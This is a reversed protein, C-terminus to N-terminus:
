VIKKRKLSTYSIIPIIIIFAIFSFISTENTQTTSFEQIIIEYYQGNNDEVVVNHNPSDDVAILYYEIVDDLQLTLDLIALYTSPVNEMMAISQWLGDNVRYYLTVNHIGSRDTVTCNILITENIAPYEPISYVNTILPETFDEIFMRIFADYTGGNFTDDYGNLEPFDTSRTNGTIYYCGDPSIAIGEGEDSSSGGVLTTWLLIGSTSFKAIFADYTGNLVGNYANLLPFNSSETEGTVSCSGDSAIAIAQAFESESGGLYTSWLLSCDPSIKTVFADGDGGYTNNHANLIPFDDSGVSGSVYCNGGLDTAICRGSDAASSGLFTSWLLSGSHSFKTIFADYTGNLTHDFGNQTPFNSSETLGTVYCSGDNAVTIGKGHDDGSGGLYTSWLLSGSASFKAAFSDIFGGPTSNYANLTPFNSSFLRGTIYCSDDSWLAISFGTETGSGGLYTSWLLSGNTSFKTVFVDSNLSLTDQYANLTPFNSSDTSGTVYCSGDQSVAIGLAEEGGSGGLYTSWLLSGNQAFKSVFADIPGSLTYDLANLTPFDSSTTYGTVYCCGDSAVAIANGHEDDSGGLYTTFGLSLPSGTTSTTHLREENSEISYSSNHISFIFLFIILFVLGLRNLQLYTRNMNICGKSM